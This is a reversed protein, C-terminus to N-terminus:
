GDRQGIRFIDRNKPCGNVCLRLVEYGPVPPVKAVEKTVLDFAHGDHIQGAQPFSQLRFPLALM